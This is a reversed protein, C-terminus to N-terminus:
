LYTGALTFIEGGMGLKFRAIGPARDAFLGGVDFWEVGADRMAGMARWLLLHNARQTRGDPGTWGVSYTASKGHRLILIGAVPRRRDYAQIVLPRSQRPASGALARVLKADPGAFRTKRRFPGYESLLWDLAANDSGASIEVRLRTAEAAKLMNRWNGKLGRRLEAEDRRLDIWTSSYGTIMRRAGLGRMVAHGEVTDPLEPMWLLLERRAMRWTARILKMGDTMEAPAIGPKLWIPGRTIQVLTGLAGVPREFVQVAAVPEAGDSLVGRRVRRHSLAEMAAGYAWSQELSSKGARALLEDWGSASGAHNTEWDLRFEKPPTPADFM